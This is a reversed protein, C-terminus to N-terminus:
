SIITGYKNNVYNKWETMEVGSPSDYVFVEEAVEVSVYRGLFVSGNNDSVSAGMAITAGSVWDTGTSGGSSWNTETLTDYAYFGDGASSDYRMKM